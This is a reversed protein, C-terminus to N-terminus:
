PATIITAASVCIFVTDVPALSILDSPVSPDPFYGTFRQSANNFRWIGRLVASNAIDATVQAPSAGAGLSLVVQSCGQSLATIHPAPVPPTYPQGGLPIGVTFNALYTGSTSPLAVTQLAPVDNVRLQLVTGAQSCPATFFTLVNVRYNGALDASGFGCSRLPGVVGPPNVVALQISAGAPPPAGISDFVTGAFIVGQVAQAHAIGLTYSHAALALGVLALWQAVRLLARLPRMLDAKPRHTSRFIRAM